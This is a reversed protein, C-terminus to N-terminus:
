RREVHPKYGRIQFIEPDQETVPVFHIDDEEFHDFFNFKRRAILTGNGVLWDKKKEELANGGLIMTLDKGFETTTDSFHDRLHAFTLAFSPELMIKPGFKWPIGAFVQPEQEFNIKVGVL